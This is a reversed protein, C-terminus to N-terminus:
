CLSIHGATLLQNNKVGCRLLPSLYSTHNSPIFATHGANTESTDHKQSTQRLLALTVPGNYFHHVAWSHVAGVKMPDPCVEDNDNSLETVHCSCVINHQGFCRINMQQEMVLATTFHFKSVWSLSFEKKYTIINVPDFNWRFDRFSANEHLTIVSTVM